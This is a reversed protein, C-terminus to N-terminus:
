DQEGMNSLDQEFDQTEDLKIKYIKIQDFVIKCKEYNEVEEYFQLLEQLLRICEEYFIIRDFYHYADKPSDKLNPKTLNLLHLEKLIRTEEDVIKNKNKM